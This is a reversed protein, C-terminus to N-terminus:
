GDLEHIYDMPNQLKNVDQKIFCLILTAKEKERSKFEKMLEKSNNDQYENKIKNIQKISYITWYVYSIGYIKSREM